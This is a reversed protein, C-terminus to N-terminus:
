ILATVPADWAGVGLSPRGGGARLRFAGDAM